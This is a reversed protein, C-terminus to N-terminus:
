WSSVHLMEEYLQRADVACPRLLRSVMPETGRSHASGLRVSDDLIEGDVEQRGFDLLEGPSVSHLLGTTQRLRGRKWRKGARERGGM